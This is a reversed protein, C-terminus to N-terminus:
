DVGFGDEHFLQPSYKDCSEATTCQLDTPVDPHVATVMGSWLCPTGEGTQQCREKMNFM